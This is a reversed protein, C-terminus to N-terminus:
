AAKAKLIAQVPEPCGAIAANVTVEPIGPIRTTQLADMAKDRQAATIHRAEALENIKQAKSEFTVVEGKFLDTVPPMTNNPNRSQGGVMRMVEEVRATLLAQGSLSAKVAEAMADMAKQVDAAVPATGTAGGTATAATSDGTAATSDGSTAAPATATKGLPWKDQNKAKAEKAAKSVSELRAEIAKMSLGVKGERLAKAVAAHTRAKALRRMGMNYQRVGANPQGDAMADAAAKFAGRALRTLGKAILRERAAAKGVAKKAEDEDEEGEEELENTIEIETGGGSEEQEAEEDEDEEEDANGSESDKNSESEGKAKSVAKVVEPIAKAIAGPLAKAVAASVAAEIAAKDIAVPEATSLSLVMLDIRDNIAKATSFLSKLAAGHARLKAGLMETARQVGRQPTHRSYEREMREAGGGAADQQPGVNVSGGPVSSEPGHANVLRAHDDQPGDWLDEVIPVTGQDDGTFMMHNESKGIEVSASVAADAILTEREAKTMHPWAAALAKSIRSVFTPKTDANAMFGGSAYPEAKPLGKGSASVGSGAEGLLGSRCECPTDTACCVHELAAVADTRVAKAVLACKTDGQRLWYLFESFTMRVVAGARERGRGDSFAALYTDRVAERHPFGLFVKHEDFAKTDADVQDIAWVPLKSAAHAEPGVYVDVQDGDAGTTEKVYGYHCPMVVSWPKGGPGIGSRTRGKPTEITVPLGGVLAHAKKYNGARAQEPTPDWARNVARDLDGPAAVEIPNDRHGPHSV